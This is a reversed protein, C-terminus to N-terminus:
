VFVHPWMYINIKCSTLRYNTIYLTKHEKRAYYDFLDREQVYGCRKCKSNFKLNFGDMVKRMVSKLSNIKEKNM